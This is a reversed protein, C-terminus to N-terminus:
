TRPKNELLKLFARIILLKVFFGCFDLWFDSALNILNQTCNRFITEVDKWSTQDNMIMLTAPLGMKEKKRLKELFNHRDMIKQSPKKEQNFSHKQIWKSEHVGGCIYDKIKYV